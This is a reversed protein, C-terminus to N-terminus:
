QRHKANSSSCQQTMWETIYHPCRLLQIGRAACGALFQVVETDVLSVEALDLSVVADSGRMLRELEDVHEVRIRGILRMTMVNGGRTVEIKLTMSRM